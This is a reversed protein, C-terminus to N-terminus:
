LTFLFPIGLCTDSYIIGPGLSLPQVNGMALDKQYCEQEKDEHPAAYTIDPGVKFPCLYSIVQTKQL